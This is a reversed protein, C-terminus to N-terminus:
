CTAPVDKIQTIHVPGQLSQYVHIVKVSQPGHPAVVKAGALFAWNRGAVPQSAVAFPTYKVGLLHSQVDEFVKLAEETVPFSWSGWGGIKTEDSMVCWGKKSVTVIQVVVRRADASYILAAYILM